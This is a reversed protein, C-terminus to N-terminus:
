KWGWPSVWIKAGEYVRQGNITEDYNDTDIIKVEMKTYSSNWNTVIGKIHKDSMMFSFLGGSYHITYEVTEGIEFKGKKTQQVEEQQKVVYQEFEDSKDHELAYKKEDPLCLHWGDKPNVWITNGKTLKDGEDTLGGPSAAIKIQVRTKSSNWQEITGMIIGRYDQRCIKLGLDWKRIDSNAKIQAERKQKAIIGDKKQKIDSYYQGNPYRNLYKNLEAIKDSYKVQLYLKREKVESVYKGSPYATLYANCDDEDGDKATNYVALEKDDLLQQKKTQVDSVYRGNPYTSLYNDCDSIDGNIAKNYAENERAIAEAEEIEQIGQRAQEVYKSNPFYSIFKNYANKTHQNNAAYYAMKVAEEYHFNYPSNDTYNKYAEITNNNKAISFLKDDYAKEIQNKYQSNPYEELFAEFMDVSNMEITEDFWKKEIIKKIEESHKGKPFREVYSNFLAIDNKPLISKYILPEISSTEIKVHTYAPSSLQTNFIYISDRSLNIKKTLEKRGKKLSLEVIENNSYITDYEGTESTHGILNKNLYIEVNKFPKGNKKTVKFKINIFQPLEKKANLSLLPLRGYVDSVSKGSGSSVFGLGIHANNANNSAINNQTKLNYLAQIEADNLARNYIRIDDLKGQWPYRWEEPGNGDPYTYHRGFVLPYNNNSQFPSATNTETLAGDQYFKIVGKDNDFVGVVYHWEGNPLIKGSAKAYSSYDYRIGITNESFWYSGDEIDRGKRIFARNNNNEKYVWCAISFSGNFDFENDDPVIIHSGNGDFYYASNAKGFRDSTLSAGYVIGNHGNGSEDDANGNFPYYAVLGKQLDVTQAFSNFGITLLLILIPILKKM